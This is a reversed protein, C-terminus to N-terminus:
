EGDGFVQLKPLALRRGMEEEESWRARFAACRQAIEQPTPDAIKPKKGSGRPRNPLHSLQDSRRQKFQDRTCSIELCIIDVREGSGWLETAKAVEQPSLVRRGDKPASRM